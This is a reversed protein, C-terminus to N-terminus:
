RKVLFEASGVEQGNLIIALRHRGPFHKRTTLDSFRQFRKIIESTDGDMVKERIQFVKKSIKGTSTIFDISYELRTKVPKKSGNYISFSFDLTGDITVSKGCKFKEISVQSPAAGFGFLKLAKTDGKKLLGRSAHKIVWDTEESIGKWATITKLVLAPHDKSIDNLNNAVSRRVTEAPDGKLNELIRLVPTPDKKLAPVGSGWPLRPRIGESALRRVFPSSHFTWDYMQDCMRDPYKLLYPRVAFEASTWQTIQEIAPISIDPHELGFREIFDAMFGYEFTMKAGHKAILQQASEKVIQAAEPYAPPLAVQMQSSIHRMREKLELNDWQDDFVKKNFTKIPFPNWIEKLLSSYSHVLETTYINKLKFPLEPTSM